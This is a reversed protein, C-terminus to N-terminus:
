PSHCTHDSGGHGHRASESEHGVCTPWTDACDSRVRRSYLSWDCRTGTSGLGIRWHNRLTGAAGPHLRRRPVRLYPRRSEVRSCYRHRSYPRSSEALTVRRGGCRCCGAAIGCVAGGMSRRPSSPPRLRYAHDAARSREGAVSATPSRVAVARDHVVRPHHIEGAWSAPPSAQSENQSNAAAEQMQGISQYSPIWRFPRHSRM